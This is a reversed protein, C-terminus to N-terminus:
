RGRRRGVEPSDSGDNRWEMRSASRGLVEAEDWQVREAGESGSRVEVDSGWVFGNGQGCDSRPCGRCAAGRRAVVLV